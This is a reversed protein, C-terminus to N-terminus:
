KAPAANEGDLEKLMTRCERAESSREYLKDCRAYAARAAYARGLKRQINGLQLLTRAHRTADPTKVKQDYEVLTALLAERNGLFVQTMSLEFLVRDLLDGSPAPAAPKEGPKEAPSRPQAANAELALAIERARGIADAGKRYERVRRWSLGIELLAEATQLRKGAPDAEAVKELVKRAEARLGQNSLLRGLELGAEADNPEKAIRERLVRFKEERARVGVLWAVLEEAPMFGVHTEIEEGQSNMLILTPFSSVGYKEMEVLHETNKARIPVYGALSAQVEKAPFTYQELRDCFKCNDRWFDVLVPKKEAEARKLAAAISTEWRIEEGRGRLCPALAVITVIALRSCTPMM